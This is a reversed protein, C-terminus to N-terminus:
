SSVSSDVFNSVTKPPSAEGTEDETEGAPQNSEPAPTEESIGNEDICFMCLVYM